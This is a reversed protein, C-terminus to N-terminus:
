LTDCELLFALSEVSHRSFWQNSKDTWNGSGSLTLVRVQTTLYFATRPPVSRFSASCKDLNCSCQSPGSHKTTVCRNNTFSIQQKMLSFSHVSVCCLNRLPMRIFPAFLRFALDTANQSLISSPSQMEIKEKQEAKSPLVCKDRQSFSLTWSIYCLFFQACLLAHFRPARQYDLPAPSLNLGPTRFYFDPSGM